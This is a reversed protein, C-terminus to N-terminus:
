VKIINLGCMVIKVFLNVLFLFVFILENLFISKRVIVVNLILRGDNIGFGGFLRNRWKFYFLNLIFKMRRCMGDEYEVFFFFYM